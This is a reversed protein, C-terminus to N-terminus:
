SAGLITTPLLEESQVTAFGDARRKRKSYKIASIITKDWRAEYVQSASFDKDKSCMIMLLYDKIPLHFQAPISPVTAGSTISAQKFYGFWKIVKVEAPIPTLTISDEFQTYFTPTGTTTTALGAMTVADYERFSIPAIKRNDYTLRKIAILDTPFSYEATDAVSNSTTSDEILWAERALINCADTVHRYMIADTFFSDSTANYEDRASDVIQQATYSM